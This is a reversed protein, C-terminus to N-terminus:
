LYRAVIRTLNVRARLRAALLYTGAVKRQVLLTDTAPVHWFDRETGIELGMDRLRIALDSTGFDFPRDHRLAEMGTDIMAFVIDRHHAPTGTDFLRLDLAAAEAGARDGSLGAVMLRHFAARLEPAFWRAAGFDLLVVQGSRPDYRYNAFNPDTQMAGFEFLERLVLDILLGAVRDRLEQPADVLQAIPRSEMYDMALVNPTCLAEHRRPVLFDASGSLFGGFAELADDVQQPSAGDLVLYSAVKSYHALIRNGIFGDCVQALVGYVPNMMMHKWLLANVTPMVFFPSILLVRAIGRGPFPADTILGLFLGLVVTIVIVWGLLLVTNLVAPWFSPDTIFYEYNELGIFGTNDPQMLNFRITSFYITMVLPVIMWLLLSIVAPAQLLRPLTRPASKQSM